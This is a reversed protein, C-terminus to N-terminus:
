NQPSPRLLRSEIRKVGFDTITLRWQIGRHRQNWVFYGCEELVVGLYSSGQAHSVSSNEQELIVKGIGMKETGNSLWEVNNALPFFEGGFEKQLRKLIQSIEQVSYSHERGDENEIRVRGSNVDFHWEFRKRRTLGGRTFPM